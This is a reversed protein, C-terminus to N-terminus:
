AASLNASSARARGSSSWQTDIFNGVRCWFCPNFFYASNIKIDMFIFPVAAYRKKVFDFYSDLVFDVDKAFKKIYRSCLEPQSLIFDPLSVPTEINTAKVQNSDKQLANVGNSPIVIEGLDVSETAKVLLSRLANTGSRQAAMICVIENM